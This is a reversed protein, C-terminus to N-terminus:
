IQAAASNGNASSREAVLPEMSGNEVITAVAGKAAGAPVEELEFKRRRSRQAPFSQKHFDSGRSAVLTSRM